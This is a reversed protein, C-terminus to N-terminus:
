PAPHVYTPASTPPVPESALDLRLAQAFLTSATAVSSPLLHAYSGDASFDNPPLTFPPKASVIGFDRNVVAPANACGPVPALYVVVRTQQTTYRRILERVSATRHERVFESPLLCSDAIPPVPAHYDVHGLARATSQERNGDRVATLVSHLSLTSNVRLPFALLELPKRRAFALIQQPSGNHLLMEEGEFLFHDGVSDRYDLDWPAFYLVLLRPPKNHALYQNLSMDGSLPLSGITNPLVLSHIHLQENVLRPDIGLFASSDGFIVVDANQHQVRFPYELIPGWESPGWREYHFAPVMVLAATSLYALVLPLMLFFAYRAFVARKRPLATTQDSDLPAETPYM